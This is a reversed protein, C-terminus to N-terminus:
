YSSAMCMCRLAFHEVRCCVMSVQLDSRQDIVENLVDNLYGLAEITDDRVADGWDNINLYSSLHCSVDM